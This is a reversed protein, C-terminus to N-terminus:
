LEKNKKTHKIQKRTLQNEQMEQLLEKNKKYATSKKYLSRRM